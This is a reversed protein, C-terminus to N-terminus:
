ATVTVTNSISAGGYTSTIIYEGAQLKINLKAIGDANTTREYM